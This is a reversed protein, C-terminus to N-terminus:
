TPLKRNKHSTPGLLIGPKPFSTPLAALLKWCAALTHATPVRCVFLWRHILNDYASREQNRGIKRDKRNHLLSCSRLSTGTLLSPSTLFWHLHVHMSIVHMEVRRQKPRCSNSFSSFVSAASASCFTSALRFSFCCYYIDWPHCWINYKGVARKQKFLLAQCCATTGSIRQREEGERGLKM